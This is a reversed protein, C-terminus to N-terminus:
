ITSSHHRDRRRQSILGLSYLLLATLSTMEPVVLTRAPQDVEDDYALRHLTISLDENLTIDAWGYHFGVIGLGTPTDGMIGYRLGLFGREGVDWFRPSLTISDEEQQAVIMDTSDPTFITNSPGIFNAPGYRFPWLVESNFPAVALQTADNFGTIQMTHRTGTPIPTETRIFEFDGDPFSDRDFFEFEPPPGFIQSIQGGDLDMYFASSTLSRFTKVKLEAQAQHSALLTIWVPLVIILSKSGVIGMRRLNYIWTTRSIFHSWSNWLTMNM